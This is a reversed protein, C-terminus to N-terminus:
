EPIRYYYIAAFVAESTTYYGKGDPTFGIAEGQKQIDYPLEIPKRQMTVWIPEEGQRQWYYVKGYSKLLIRSGDKSIDGATVYKFPKFGPILIKGQLTLVRSENDKFMLPTTYIRVTDTRKNIIYLLNQLPDVMLTESDKSGDPYNLHLQAPTVHNVSDKMWSSKEEFRYVTVYPRGNYNDGIDGLYVYSKGTKPGKGVSIDECDLQPYKMQKDKQFYFTALLNGQPTIAFFRSTDGSDNHVYYTNDFLGSAAIGSIEDMEKDQMFGSIEKSRSKLKYLVYGTAFLLLIALFLLIIYKKKRIM